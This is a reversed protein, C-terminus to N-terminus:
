PASLRRKVMYYILDAVEARTLYEAPAFVGSTTPLVANPGVLGQSLGSSVYPVYWQDLYLDSYTKLSNLNTQSFDSGFTRTVIKLAEVKNVANDPRYNGDPYGGVVGRTKASKIYRAHWATKAVDPFPKVVVDSPTSAQVARTAMTAIEARTSLLDPDFYCPRRGGAIDQDYLYQIAQESSSGKIDRFTCHNAQSSLGGALATSDTTVPIGGTIKIETVQDGSTADHLFPLSTDVIQSTPLVENGGSTQAMAVAPLAISFIAAVVFFLRRAPPLM